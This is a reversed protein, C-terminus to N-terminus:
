FRVHRLRGADLESPRIPPRRTLSVLAPHPVGRNQRVVDLLRAQPERRPGAVGGFLPRPPSKPAGYQARTDRVLRRAVLGLRMSIEAVALGLTGVDIM